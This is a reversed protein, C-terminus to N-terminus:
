PNLGVIIALGVFQRHLIHTLEARYAVVFTSAQPLGIPRVKAKTHGLETHLRPRRWLCSISITWQTPWRRSACDPCDIEFARAVDAVPTMFGGEGLAFPRRTIKWVNYGKRYGCIECDLVSALAPLGPLPLPLM